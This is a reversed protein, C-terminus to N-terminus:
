KEGVMRRRKARDDDACMKRLHTLFQASNRFFKAKDTHVSTVSGIFLNDDVRTRRDHGKKLEYHASSWLRVVYNNTANANGKKTEM